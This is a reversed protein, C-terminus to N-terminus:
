ITPDAVLADRLGSPGDIKAGNVLVGTADIPAGADRDRWAGVADFKDLAFGIPDMLRHCGACPQNVRHSELRGRMTKAKQGVTNEELAPVVAPPPPPPTGVINELVWKGRLVPSTRNARSTVALIAGKGLLGRRDDQTLTVRRFESGFVNQIGYHGALRENLFTYDATMLDMVSRDNRVIDD